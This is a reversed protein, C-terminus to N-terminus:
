RQKCLFSILHFLYGREDKFTSRKTNLAQQLYDSSMQQELCNEDPDKQDCRTCANVSNLSPSMVQQTM